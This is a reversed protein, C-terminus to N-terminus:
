AEDRLKVFVVPLGEEEGGGILKNEMGKDEALLFTMDSTLVKLAFLSALQACVRQRAFPRDQIGFIRFNSGYRYNVRAEVINEPLYNRKNQILDQMVRNKIETYEKSPNFKNLYDSMLFVNTRRCNATRVSETYTLIDQRARTIDENPVFHGKGDPFYDDLDLDAVLVTTNVVIGEQQLIDTFDYLYKFYNEEKLPYHIEGDKNPVGETGMSTILKLRNGYPYTFRLCKITFVDLEEGEKIARGLMEKFTRNRETAAVSLKNIQYVIRLYMQLNEGELGLKNVAFFMERSLERLRRILNERTLYAVGAERKVGDKIKAKLLGEIKNRFTPYEKPMDTASMKGQAFLRQYSRFRPELEEIGAFVLHDYLNLHANKRAKLENLVFTTVMEKTPMTSQSEAEKKAENLLCNFVSQGSPTPTNLFQGFIRRENSRKLIDTVLREKLDKPVPFMSADFDLSLGYLAMGFDGRM